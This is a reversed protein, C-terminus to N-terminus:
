LALAHTMRTCQNGSEGDQECRQCKTCLRALVVILGVRTPMSAVIIFQISRSVATAGCSSEAGSQAPWFAHDIGPLREGAGWM